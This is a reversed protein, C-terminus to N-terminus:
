TSTDHFSSSFVVCSGSDLLSAIMSSVFTGDVIVTVLVAFGVTTCSLPGTVKVTTTRLLEATSVTYM